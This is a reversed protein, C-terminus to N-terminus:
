GGGGGAGGGGAGAPSPPSLGGLVLGLRVDGAGAGDDDNSAGGDSGDDESADGGAGSRKGREGVLRAPRMVASALAPRPRSETAPNNCTATKKKRMALRLCSSRSRLSGASHLGTNHAGALGAVVSNSGPPTSAGECWQSEAPNITAKKEGTGQM